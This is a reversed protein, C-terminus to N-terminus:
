ELRSPDGTGGLCCRQKGGRDVRGMIGQGVYGVGYAKGWMGQGVHGVGYARSQTAGQARKVHVCM